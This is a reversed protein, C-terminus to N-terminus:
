RAACGGCTAHVRDKAERLKAQADDCADRGDDATALECLRTAAREMSALARCATACDSGAVSLERRAGDFDSRARARAAARAGPQDPATSQVSESESGAGAGAAAPPPAAMPAEESAPAPTSAPAAPPPAAGGCAALVVPVLLLVLSLPLSLARTM